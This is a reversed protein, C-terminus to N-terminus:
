DLQGALVKVLYQNDWGAQKRKCKVGGKATTEQKLLWAAIRRIMALNEPGHDTRLRSGDEDFCVDLAWHLNNEISWHGRAANAFRKVDLPLSSLHFGTHCTAPGTGQQRESFIMGLTRLGKWGPHQELFTAPVKVQHYTRTEVRDHADDHTTYSQHQLDAFDNELGERFLASVAEALTPHNDKLALVYDGKGEIIKAAIEKQCGMADITVVAGTVDILKLLEPIATIENSKDAVAVQGLVLHQQAAWASVVHLPSQGKAKDFSHRMTKGDIPVIRGKSVKHLSNIWNAFCNHFQQPDLQAFVRGFTDHSPIGNPLELFSELWTRKNNGFKEVQVWSEAGSIVGCLAVVVIDILRHRRTRNMRPDELDAFHVLVSTVSTPSSITKSM